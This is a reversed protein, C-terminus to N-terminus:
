SKQKAIWTMVVTAFAWQVAVLYVKIIVAVSLSRTGFFTAILYAIFPLYTLWGRSNVPLYSGRVSKFWKDKSKKKAAM